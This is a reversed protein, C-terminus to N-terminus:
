AHASPMDDRLMQVLDFLHADAEVPDEPWPTCFMRGEAQRRRALGTDHVGGTIDWATIEGVIKGNPGSRAFAEYHYLNILRVPDHHAPDLAGTGENFGFSVLADYRNQTLPASVHEKIAQEVKSLDAALLDSIQQETRGASFDEGSRVLHGCGMTWFGKYDKYPFYLKQAENWGCRASRPIWEQAQIFATGHGSTKM